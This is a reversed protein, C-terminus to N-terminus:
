GVSRLATLTTGVPPLGLAVPVEIIAAARWVTWVRGPPVSRAALVTGTDDVAVVGLPDRMGFTHISRTRLVLGHPGPVPRLGIRRRRGSAAVRVPGSSWGGGELEYVVEEVTVSADWLCV